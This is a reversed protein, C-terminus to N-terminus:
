RGNPTGSTVKRSRRGVIWWIILGIIIWLPSFIGLWVLIDILVRGFSQLGRWASAVTTEPGWGGVIKIYDTRAETTSYGKDDTVKLTVSYESVSKYSHTPSKNNSTNGDGFDWEYNYPTFGGSVDAGFIIKEAPKATTKNANIKLALQAQALQIIILSTASTQELYQMRGKTQEIEGRVSTLERQVNLVDETKEASEMIKFLQSETAELNKLRSALDVYEQTVDSSSTTENIVDMATNRLASMAQDYSESPIRISINGITREGEKWKQSSVVYGKLDSTIKVIEDLAVSVDGVVLQLNGTRVVMRVIVDSSNATSEASYSPTTTPAPTGLPVAGKGSNDSASASITTPPPPQATATSDGSGGSFVRDLFSKDLGYEHRLGSLDEGARPTSVGLPQPQSTSCSVSFVVVIVVVGMGLGALLNRM